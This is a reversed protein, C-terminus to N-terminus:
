TRRTLPDRPVDSAYGTVETGRADVVRQHGVQMVVVEAPKGIERAQHRERLQEVAAPGLIGGPLRWGRGRDLLVQREHTGVWGAHGAELRAPGILDRQEPGRTVIRFEHHAVQSDVALHPGARALRRAVPKRVLPLRERRLLVGRLVLATEANAHAVAGEVEVRAAIGGAARSRTRRRPVVDLAGDRLRHSGHLHRGGVMVAVAVRGVLEEDARQLRAQPDQLYPRRVVRTVVHQVPHQRSFQVGAIAVHERGVHRLGIAQDDARQQVPEEAAAPM